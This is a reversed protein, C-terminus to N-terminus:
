PKPAFVVKLYSWFNVSMSVATAVALALVPHARFPDSWTVLVMYVGLNVSAALASAVAYQAFERLSARGARDAFTRSRNVLWTVVLAISFSALRALRSEAGLHVLLSLVGADVLFGIGGAVVFWGIRSSLRM